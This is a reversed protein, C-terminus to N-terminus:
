HVGTSEPLLYLQHDKVQYYLPVVLKIGPFLQRFRRAEELVFDRENGIHCKEAYRDFQEEACERSWGGHTMLGTVFEERQGMVKAMACDSHAVLAIAAVGKSVALSSYFKHRKSRFNGGAARLVFAFNEPVHIRMRFDMCMGLLLEPKSFRGAEEGLNHSVILTEIPSDRWEIPIDSRSRIPLVGSDHSHRQVRAVAAAEPGFEARELDLHHSGRRDPSGTQQVHQHGNMGEGIESQGSM